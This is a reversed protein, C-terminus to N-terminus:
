EQKCGSANQLYLVRGQAGVLKLSSGAPEGHVDQYGSGISLTQAPQQPLAFAVMGRSYRRTILGGHQTAAGCPEGISKDFGLFQPPESGYHPDLPHVYVATHANAMTLYSAMASQITSENFPNLRYVFYYQKGKSTTFEVLKALTTNLAATKLSRDAGEDLIGDVAKVMRQVLPSSPDDGNLTLDPTHNINVKIGRTHLVNSIQELWRVIDSAFITDERQGTYRAIFKGNMANGCAHNHSNFQYNDLAVEHVGAPPASFIKAQWQAVEPNSVDLSINKGGYMAAPTKGDCEYEVWSPHSHNWFEIDHRADPDRSYPFYKSLVVNPAHNSFAAISNDSAGWVFVYENGHEAIWSPSLKYTFVLLKQPQDAGASLAIGLTLLFVFIRIAQRMVFKKQRGLHSTAM